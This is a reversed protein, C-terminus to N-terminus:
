GESESSRMRALTRKAEKTIRAEPMGSALEELLQCADPTDLHELVEIARSAALDAPSRDSGLKNEIEHLLRAAELSAPKQLAQMIASTARDGLKELEARNRERVEYRDNDLGKILRTVLVADAPAAPAIHRRLVAVPDGTRERLRCQAEFAKASNEEGLQRWLDIGAGERAATREATLGALDWVITTTDASGSALYHEGAFALSQVGGRHGASTWSHSPSWLDVVGVSGDPGGWALLRGKRSFRLVSEDLAAASVSSRVTGTQMEYIRIEKGAAM